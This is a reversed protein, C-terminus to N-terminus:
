NAMVKQWKMTNEIGDIILIPFVTDGGIGYARTKCLAKDCHSCM